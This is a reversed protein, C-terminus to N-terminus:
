SAQLYVCRRSDFPLPSRGIRTVLHGAGDLDYPDGIAPVRGSGHVLRYGEKGPAFCLYDQLASEGEGSVGPVSEVALEDLAQALVRRTEAHSSTEEALRADLAALRLDAERQDRNAKAALQSREEAVGEVAFALEASLAEVEQLKAATEDLGARAAEALKRTSDHADREDALASEGIALREGLADVQM